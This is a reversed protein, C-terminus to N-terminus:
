SIKEKIWHFWLIFLLVFTYMFSYHWSYPFTLITKRMRSKGFGNICSFVHEKIKSVRFKDARRNIKSKLFYVTQLRYLNWFDFKYFVSIHLKLSKNVWYLAWIQLEHLRHVDFSAFTHRKIIKQKWYSARFIIPVLFLGITCVERHLVEENLLHEHTISVSGAKFSIVLSRIKCM